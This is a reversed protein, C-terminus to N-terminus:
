GPYRAQLWALWEAELEEVSWGTEEVLVADVDAQRRWDMQTLGVGVAHAGDYGFREELFVFVSGSLIYAPDVTDVSEFMADDPLREPMGHGDVSEGMTEAMAYDRRVGYWTAFGEVVWNPALTVQAKPEVLAHVAEHRVLEWGGAPTGWQAGEQLAALDVTLRDVWGVQQYGIQTPDVADAGPIYQVAGFPMGAQPGEFIQAMDEPDALAVVLREGDDDAALDTLANQAARSIGDLLATVDRGAPALVLAGEVEHVAVETLDWLQPYGDTANQGRWGVVRPDEGPERDLTVRYSEIGTLLDGGTIEHAFGLQVVTGEGADQALMLDAIMERRTMPVAQVNDFWRLVEQETAEDLDFFAAWADADGERLADTLRVALDIVDRETIATPDVEQTVAAESTAAAPATTTAAALDSTSTSASDDASEPPAATIGVSGEQTAGACGGVTVLTAVVASPVLPSRRRRPQPAPPMGLMM